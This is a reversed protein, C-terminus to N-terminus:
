QTVGDKVREFVRKGKERNERDVDDKRAKFLTAIDKEHCELKHSVKAAWMLIQYLNMAALVSFGGIMLWDSLKFESM